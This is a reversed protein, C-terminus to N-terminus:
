GNSSEGNNERASLITYGRMRDTAISFGGNMYISTEQFPAELDDIKLPNEMIFWGNHPIGM